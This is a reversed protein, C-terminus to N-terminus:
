LPSSISHTNLLTRAPICQPGLVTFQALPSDSLIGELRGWRRGSGQHSLLLSDTQWHLLGPNSGQSLFIGQLLFHCCVGTNKGPFDWPCLLRTPFPGHLQLSNPMVSRSFLFLLGVWFLHKQACSCLWIRHSLSTCVLPLAQRRLPASGVKQLFLSISLNQPIHAPPNLSM